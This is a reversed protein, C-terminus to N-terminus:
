TTVSGLIIPLVPQEVIIYGLPDVTIDVDFKYQMITQFTLDYTKGATIGDASTIQYTYLPFGPDAIVDAIPIIIETPPALSGQEVYTIIYEKVSDGNSNALSTLTIDLAPNGGFTGLAFIVPSQNPTFAYIIDGFQTTTACVTEAKINYVVHENGDPVSLTISYLGAIGPGVSQLLTYALDSNIKYYVNLADATAGLDVTITYNIAM